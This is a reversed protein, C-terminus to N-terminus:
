DDGESDLGGSRCDTDSGSGSDGALGLARLHDNARADNRAIEREVGALTELARRLRRSEFSADDGARTSRGRSLRATEVVAMVDRRADELHVGRDHFKTM